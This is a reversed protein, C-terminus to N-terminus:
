RAIAPPMASKKPGASILPQYRHRSSAGHRRTRTPRVPPMPLPLDSTAAANAARPASTRSASSMACAILRRPSAPDDRRRRIARRTTRRRRRRARGRPVAGARTRRDSTGGRDRAAAADASRARPEVVCDRGPAPGVAHEDHRQQELAAAQALAHRAHEDDVTRLLLLHAAHLQAAAERASSTRAIM